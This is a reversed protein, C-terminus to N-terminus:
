GNIVCDLEPIIDLIDEGRIKDIANTFEKFAVCNKKHWTKELHWLLLLFHDRIKVGYKQEYDNIYNELRKRISRRVKDPLINVHFM